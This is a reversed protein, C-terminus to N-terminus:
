NPIKVQFTAGIVTASKEGVGIASLLAQGPTKFIMHFLHSGKDAFLLGSFYWDLLHELIM